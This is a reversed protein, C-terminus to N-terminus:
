LALTEFAFSGDDNASFTQQDDYSGDIAGIKIEADKLDTTVGDALALRGTVRRKAEVARHLQIKPKEGSAVDVTEEARWLPTYISASLKGPLTRTTARGHDDTKAWWQPGGSGHRIEGNENWSYEHERRFSISLNPYPKRQPGSTVLVEVEQGELAALDFLSVQDLKSDYPILDILEGVWTSDLVYACYTADPLVDVAFKGDADTFMSLVDSYDEREGQFSDVRVYFGADSDGTSIVRGEVTKRAASRKLKFVVADEITEPEGVLYWESTNLDPYFHHKEWDPFWRYVVEGNADTTMRSHENIGIFNYDPPATAMEIVFEIGPVASGDEEVFRLKQDRSKSLEIVHEDADPDRTPKRNFSFGGVRRDDTWTTFRYLDQDPLLGFRCTGDAGTRSRLETGFNLEAKVHANAVPQGDEM